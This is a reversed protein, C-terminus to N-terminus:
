PQVGTVTSDPSQDSDSFLGRTGQRVRPQEVLESPWVLSSMAPCFQCRELPRLLDLGLGTGLEKANVDAQVAFIQWPAHSVVLRHLRGCPDTTYASYREVLWADLPGKSADDDMNPEEFEARLLPKAADAPLHSDFLWATGRKEYSIRAFVYPLPTFWRALRVALRSGAHISLFYIAADDRRRVYTRLNLELFNSCRGLSPLGRRRVNQLRFAVASLWANGQWTDIELAAPVLPRM